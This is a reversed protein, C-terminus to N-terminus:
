RGRTDSAVAALQGPARRRTRVQVNEGDQVLVVDAMGLFFGTDVVGPLALIDQELRRPDAVPTISCDLLFNGNDTLFPRDERLRPTAPIGREALRRRCPDLGFPVVEVPLRGRTGLVPVIKEPGVLIILRGAASEVIRERVLAGGYGKILSLEPDVEDAGDFALDLAPVEALTTLPVGLREAEIATAESTPVARVRLGDAVAAALVHLFRTSARGSGLGITQGDRVYELAREAATM